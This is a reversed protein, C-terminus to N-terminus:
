AEGFGALEIRNVTETWWGITHLGPVGQELAQEAVVASVRPLNMCKAINNSLINYVSAVCCVLCCYVCLGGM